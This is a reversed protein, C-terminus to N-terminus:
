IDVNITIIMKLQTQRETKSASEDKAQRNSDKFNVIKPFSNNFKEVARKIVNNISTGSIAFATM